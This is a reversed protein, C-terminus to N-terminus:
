FNFPLEQKGIEALTAENKDTVSKINKNLTVIWFDKIEQLKGVMDIMNEFM